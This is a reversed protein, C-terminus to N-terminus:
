TTKRSWYLSEWLSQGTFAQFLLCLYLLMQKFVFMDAETAPFHNSKLLFNMRQLTSEPVNAYKCTRCCGNPLFTITGQFFWLFLLFLIVKKGQIFSAKPCHSSIVLLFQLMSRFLCLCHNRGSKIDILKCLITSIFILNQLFDVTFMICNKRLFLELFHKKLTKHIQIPLICPM